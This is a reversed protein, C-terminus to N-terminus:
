ISLYLENSSLDSIVLLLNFIEYEFYPNSTILLAAKLCDISIALLLISSTPVLSGVM